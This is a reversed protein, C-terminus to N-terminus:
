WLDESTLQRGLLEEQTIQGWEIAKELAADRDYFNGNTDIFGQTSNRDTLPMDSKDAIGTNVLYRIINGHRDGPWIMCKFDIAAAIFKDPM